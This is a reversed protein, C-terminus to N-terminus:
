QGGNQKRVNKKFGDFFEKLSDFERRWSLGTGVQLRRGGSIDPELREYGRIKLTRADNLYYELVLNNGVFTGSSTSSAFADNNFVNLDHRLTLRNSFDKSVSFEFASGRTNSTSNSLSANRYSNYAVDFDLSSIFADEGFADRVLDNLLLSVYNSLWESVTNVVVDAGSFSLDSPLFQGAVILGFVQRNLENPDLLLLRRKNNAYSELQGDLNPFGIDFSIDPKTLIGSLGLTLDIDTARSADTTLTNSVDTVLYEQIFNLIPAKLNEYDAEIDILAEFPDGTWTVTGGSRVSFEKNIINAFTFLYNGKAIEFTGFMQLEGDRPILLRLNGNGQGQLIDGVEEDFIIEGIAEDTVTLEMELSVGTPVQAAEAEDEEQYVGRNVFRVNDIPGAESGYDVPISLKSDSGVTARVYIDPQRFNGTFFVAGSGIAIGYFNPNQGPALDLALFRDTNIQANLGLNKLRNHTVGGSLTAGNGYRDILRTGTLDFLSNNINVISQYYRYRTQLYDITFAGGLANIYGSVDLAKPPGAVNLEANFEGTIDSVSGGVWYKALDLPYGNINVSLDLYDKRQKPLPDSSVLDALNYTAEAILQSTDRNLNLYTTIKGKPSPSSADIRLYGYDEGNMLFTDSRVQVSLDKQRFVDAISINVDVDGKFDLQSYDWISDILSLDMNVLDLDLGKDGFKNLRISRRGSRLAFNQTDIYDPGFIVYNNRRINWRQQFIKLESEDFRLEFNLSDPLSLEGDLEIKELLINDEDGGYTIGFDILDNDILSLLTVRNLVPRNKVITSGVAFDLGGEGRDSSARLICDTFQFDEFFLNPATFELNTSDVFGDYSGRLNVDVLPGLKPTILRNLGRSDLVKLDFSFRNPAPIRRPPTINLRNAWKPYYDILFGILSSSVEDLDFRGIIEAQAIDSELKVVKQGAQNFNSYALLSDIAIAVTDVKVEFSDLAVRGEMESFDKGTLNLDINGSLAIPKKSLNLRYLDLEGVSADFDFTPISDRFDLEGLFSFDINDDAITFRGNFFRDELRGDIVANQYTYNQFTFDRITAELDAKATNAKLGIGNNITGNLSITGFQPNDLWTGLDFDDLSLAGRYNAPSYKTATELKMDVTTQGIDTKLNGNFVFDTFFGDFSGNFDLKGLRDFNEPPTFAPILRRLTNMNTTLRRLQLNLAESGRITLNRSSFSGELRTYNDLALKIDKGRLNNVRSSFRGGINIKQRRNDRFFQNFRLNRAFYMIDRVAVESDKVRIDLSVRDNFESWSSWGRPFRFRLSDSLSSEATELKLDYLQLLTPTIRLDQVSLRDLIFGSKEELSLHKLKGTFISKHFDVETLELDINKTGLRAFDVATIDSEAIPDKRFNDLDFVGDIIEISNALIHLYTANSDVLSEDLERLLSDRLDVIPTPPISTQKVHPSRLEVSAIQITKNPLDLDEIRAVGSQLSVDFRQGRVSDNQVLSIRQLDLRELKLNLPNSKGQSPPFLKNLATQLNSEPDGLDRRIKFQTDAILISEISLGNILDFNAALTKGYLLTDGYKDEIFLGEITMEDLWSIHVNDVSVRTELTQEMSFTVQKVLWNQVVPLQLLLVLIIFFFILGLFIRRALKWARRKPRAPSPPTNNEVQQSM